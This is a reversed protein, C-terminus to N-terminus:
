GVTGLETAIVNSDAKLHDVLMQMTTFHLADEDLIDTHFERELEMILSVSDLSVINLAESTDIKTPCDKGTAKAIARLVFQETNTM